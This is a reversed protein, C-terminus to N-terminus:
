SWVSDQIAYRLNQVQEVLWAAIMPLGIPSVLFAIVLLIIGNQVSTTILVAIGLIGVLTSALGFVFSSCLLLASFIWVILTLLVIIPATLIKLIFRM